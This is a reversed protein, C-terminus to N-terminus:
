LKYSVLSFGGKLKGEKVNLNFPHNNLRDNMIKYIHYLYGYICVDHHQLKVGYM